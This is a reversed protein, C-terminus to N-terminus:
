GRQRRIEGRNGWLTHKVNFDGQIVISVDKFKEVLQSLHHIQRDVATKPELYVSIVLLQSEGLDVLVWVALVEISSLCRNGMIIASRVREKVHYVLHLGGLGGVKGGKLLYPEQVTWIDHNNLCLSPDVLNMAAICHGLNQNALRVLVM